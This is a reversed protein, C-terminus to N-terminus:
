LIDDDEGEEMEESLSQKYLNIMLKKLERREKKQIDDISDVYENILQETDKAKEQIEEDTMNGLEEDRVDIVQVDHPSHSYINDLYMDFHYPDEMNKIVIKVFANTISDYNKTNSPLNKKDSDDYILKFFMKYPNEIYELEHTETDFIHFGRSDNYDSWTFEFCSGLYTINKKTSKHHFHGSFVHDFKNFVNMKMGHENIAGKNMEFGAIEFHGCLISADSYKMAQLYEKHNSNNIWPINLIKSGPYELVTPEDIINVSKYGRLLLDPSNIKNTNKYAVDHNGLILHMTLGNEEIGEIFFKNSKWLTHYNIFKRRDFYDGLHIIETIGRKKLEPFFINKYFKEQNNLFVHSDSRIGHHTDTIFCIKNGSM